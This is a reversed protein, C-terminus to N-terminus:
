QGAERIVAIAARASARYDDVIGCDAFWSGDGNLYDTEDTRALAKAVKEVLEDEAADAAVRTARARLNSPTWGDGGPPRWDVDLVELLDAARRLDAPSSPDLPAVDERRENWAATAADAHDEREEQLTARATKLEQELSARWADHIKYIVEIRPTM